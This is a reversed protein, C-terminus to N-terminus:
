LSLGPTPEPLEGHPLIVHTCLSRLSQMVMSAHLHGLFFALDSIVFANFIYTYVHVYTHICIRIYTFVCVLPFVNFRSARSSM